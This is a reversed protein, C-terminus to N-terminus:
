RTVVARGVPNGIKGEALNKDQLLNVWLTQGEKLEVTESYGESLDLSKETCSIVKGNETVSYILSVNEKNSAEITVTIGNDEPVCSVIGCDLTINGTRILYPYSGEDDMRVSYTHKGGSVKSITVQGNEDAILEQGDFFVSADEMPELEYGIVNWYNDLKNRKGYVTIVVDDGEKPLAPFVNIVPELTDLMDGYYLIVEDGGKIVCANMYDSPAIGNITYQWGDLWDFMGTEEGNIANIFVYGEGQPADYDINNEDMVKKLATWLIGDEPVDVNGSFFTEYCGEIRLTFSNTEGGFACVSLCLLLVLTLTFIRKANNKM